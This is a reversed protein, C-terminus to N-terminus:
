PLGIPASYLVSSYYVTYTLGLQRLIRLLDKFLEIYASGVHFSILTDVSNTIVQMALTVTLLGLTLAM